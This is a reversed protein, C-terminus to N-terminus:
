EKRRLHWLGWGAKKGSWLPKHSFTKSHPQNCRRGSRMWFLPLAPWSEHEACSWRSFSLPVHRIPKRSARVPSSCWIGHCVVKSSQLYHTTTQHSEHESLGRNKLKSLEKACNKHEPSHSFMYKILTPFIGEMYWNNFKKRFRFRIRAFLQM